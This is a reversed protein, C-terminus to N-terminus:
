PRWEVALISVDDLPGNPQCWTEVADLLNKVGTDVPETRSAAICAAMADDGYPNRDKDMAEPVGDSYLFLRDGPALQLSKQEYEVDPVFAIPFSEM